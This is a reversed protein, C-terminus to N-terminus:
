EDLVIINGCWSVNQSMDNVLREPNSYPQLFEVGIAERIEELLMPRRAIAVWPFIKKALKAKGMKDITSLIRNYTEPLNKPLIQITERIDHDCVQRCIDGIQFAVWLFRRRNIRMISLSYPM